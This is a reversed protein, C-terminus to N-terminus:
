SLVEIESETFMINPSNTTNIYGDFKEFYYCPIIIIINVGCWNLYEIENKDVSIEIPFQINKIFHNTSNKIKFKM